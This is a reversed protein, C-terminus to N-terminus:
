YLSLPFGLPYYNMPVAPPIYRHFFTPLYGLHRDYLYPPVIPPGYGPPGGRSASQEHRHVVTPRLQGFMLEMTADHRYSPNALFETRIFPISRYIAWYAAPDMCPAAEVDPQLSDDLMEADAEAADDASELPEPVLGGELTDEAQALMVLSGPESTSDAPSITMEWIGNGEPVAIREEASANLGFMPLGIVVVSPVFVRLCGYM